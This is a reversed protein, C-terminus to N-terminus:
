QQAVTHTLLLQRSCTHGDCAVSEVVHPLLKILVHLAACKLVPLKPDYGKKGKDSVNLMVKANLM